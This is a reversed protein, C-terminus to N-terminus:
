FVLKVFPVMEPLCVGLDYHIWSIDPTRPKVFAIILNKILEDNYVSM